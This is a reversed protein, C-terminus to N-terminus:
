PMPRVTVAFAGGRRRALLDYWRARGQSYPRVWDTSVDLWQNDSLPQGFLPRVQETSFRVLCLLIMLNHTVVLLMLERCQSWYYRAAISAGLRRKIMSFVTEVQWRQGYGGYDKDLRRKMRRRHRGTPPKSTPRGIKAPIFSRVGRLERAHRHNAESDYGADALASDLLIRDLAQDLLPAFRDTDVRPGRGATAAVIFHTACDAAAELKAYPRYFVAKEGNQARRRTYYPSAHGCQMGTSDLAARRVKRRRRFFRRVLQNLLGKVKDARLLKRSAKQLTTFHPVKKLGLASRLDSLDSLLKCIGRYDTKFFIKLVLCASKQRQTFTKPSYRHSYDSFTASGVALAERAVGLPSKSTVSM